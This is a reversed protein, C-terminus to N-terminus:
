IPGDRCCRCVIPRFGPAPLRAAATRANTALRLREAPAAIMRRLAQALAAADAPAVLVGTGSPVTQPIAGARTSVVPTGIVAALAM